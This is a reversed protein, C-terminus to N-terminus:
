LATLHVTWARGGAMYAAKQSGTLMTPLQNTTAAGTHESKSDAWCPLRPFCDATTRRPPQSWLLQLRSSSRVQSGLVMSRVAPPRTM